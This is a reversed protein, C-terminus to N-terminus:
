KQAFHRFGLHCFELHSGDDLETLIFSDLQILNWLKTCITPVLRPLNSDSDSHLSLTKSLSFIVSTGSDLIATDSDLIASNLIAAIMLNLSFSHTQTLNLTSHLTTKSGIQAFSSLLTQSGFSASPQICCQCFELHSGDDLQTLIFSHLIKQAFTQIWFQCIDLHAAMM